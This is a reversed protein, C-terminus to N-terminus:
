RCKKGLANELELTKGYVSEKLVLKNSTCSQITYTVTKTQGAVLGYAQGYNLSVNGVNEIKSYRVTIVNGTLSYTGTAEVFDDDGGYQFVVGGEIFEGSYNDYYDFMIFAWTGDSAPQTQWGSSYLLTAYDTNGGGGSSETTFSKDEGYYYKSGDFAFARVHYKTNPSLNNITCVYPKDCVGTSQKNDAPTPNSSTGWCVGLETLSVNGDVIADGGCSASTGTIDTPTYTTIKINGDNPKNCGVLCLAILMAGFFRMKKSM